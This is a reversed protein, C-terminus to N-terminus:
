KDERLYAQFFEIDEKTHVGIFIIQSFATGRVNDRQKPKVVNFSTAELSLGSIHDSNFTDPIVILTRKM